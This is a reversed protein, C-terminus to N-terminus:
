DGLTAVLPVPDPLIGAHFLSVQKGEQAGYGGYFLCGGGNGALHLAVAQALGGKGAEGGYFGLQDSAADGHLLHNLLLRAALNQPELNQPGPNPTGTVGCLARFTAQGGASLVQLSPGRYSSALERM